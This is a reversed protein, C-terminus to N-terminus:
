KGDRQIFASGRRYVAFSIPLDFGAAYAMDEIEAGLVARREKGMRELSPEDLEVILTERRVRFRVIDTDMMEAIHREVADILRLAKPEVPIGTEVRSSLCPAAPLESLDEFGLASALARVGTKDVGVEM